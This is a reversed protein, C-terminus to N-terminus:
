TFKTKALQLSVTRILLSTAIRDSPISLAIFQPNTRLPIQSGHPMISLKLQQFTRLNVMGFMTVGLAKGRLFTTFVRLVCDIMQLNILDFLNRLASLFIGAISM